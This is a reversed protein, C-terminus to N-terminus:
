RKMGKVPEKIGEDEDNKFIKKYIGLLKYTWELYSLKVRMHDFAVM